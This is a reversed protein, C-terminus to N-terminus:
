SIVITIPTTSDKLKALLDVYALKSEELCGDKKINGVLICGETDSTRNGPHIRVGEFNPVDHLLPMDRKFRPSWTVSVRYRGAPIASEGPIKVLTIPDELTFCQFEGDV